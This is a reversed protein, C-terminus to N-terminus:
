KEEVVGVKGSASMKEWMADPIRYYQAEYVYGSSETRYYAMYVAVRTGDKARIVVGVPYVRDTYVKAGFSDESDCIKSLAKLGRKDAVGKEVVCLSLDESPDYFDLGDVNKALKAVDAPEGRYLIQGDRVTFRGEKDLGHIYDVFSDFIRKRMECQEHMAAHDRKVTEKDLGPFLRESWLAGGQAFVAGTNSGSSAVLLDHIAQEMSVTGDQVPQLLTRVAKQVDGEEYYRGADIAYRYDDAFWRYMPETNRKSSLIELLDSNFEGKVTVFGSGPEISDIGRLLATRVGPMEFRVSPIETKAWKGILSAPLKLFGVGVRVPTLTIVGDSGMVADLYVSGALRLSDYYMAADMRVGEDTVDLGVAEPVLGAERLIRRVEGTVDEDTVGASKLLSAADHMDIRVSVMGTEADVTFRDRSDMPDEVALKELSVPEVKMNKMTFYFYAAAGGALVVLVLLVILLVKLFKKM